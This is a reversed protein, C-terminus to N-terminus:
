LCLTQRTHHHYPPRVGRIVVGDPSPMRRRATVDAASISPDESVHWSLVRGQGNSAAKGVGRVKSLLAEIRSPDGICIWELERSFSSAYAINSAKLPGLSMNYSSDKSYRVMEDVAPKKRVAHQSKIVNVAAEKSALWGWVLGDDNLLDIHVDDDETDSTWKALPLDLDVVSPSDIPPLRDREDRDMSLYFGFALIGDLHLGDIGPMYPEAMRAVVRVGIM